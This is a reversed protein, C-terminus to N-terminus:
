CHVLYAVWPIALAIYWDFLSEPYFDESFTNSLKKKFFILSLTTVITFMRKRWYCIKEKNHPLRFVHKSRSYTEKKKDVIIDSM